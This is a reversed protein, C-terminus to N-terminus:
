CLRPLRLTILDIENTKLHEGEPAFYCGNSEDKSMM